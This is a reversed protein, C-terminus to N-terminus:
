IDDEQSPKRQEAVKLLEDHVFHLLSARKPRVHGRILKISSRNNKWILEAPRDTEQQIQGYKKIISNRIVHFQETDFFATIRFLQGDIFQYLMRETEVGGITPSRLENPLDIRGHVIGAKHHWVEAFLGELEQGPASDSCWPLSHLLGGIKREYKSKFEDLTMGLQDGKLEYLQAKGETEIGMGGANESNALNALDQLVQRLQDINMDESGLCDIKTNSLESLKYSTAAPADYLALVASKRRRFLENIMERPSADHLLRQAFPSSSGDAGPIEVVVACKPCKGKKGALKEDVQLMANCEPCIIQIPM